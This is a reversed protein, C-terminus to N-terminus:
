TIIRGLRRGVQWGCCGVVRRDVVIVGSTSEHLFPLIEVIFEIGDTSFKNGEAVFVSGWGGGSSRVICIHRVEVAADMVVDGAQYVVALGWGLLTMNELLELTDIV